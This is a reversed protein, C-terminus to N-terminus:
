PPGGNFYRLIRPAVHVSVALGDCIRQLWDDLIPERLRFSGGDVCATLHPADVTRASGYHVFSPRTVFSHRGVELECTPDYYRGQKISSVSVILHHDRLCRPTIVVYLHLGDGSPILFTDKVAPVYAM